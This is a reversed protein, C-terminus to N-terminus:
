KGGGTHLDQISACILSVSNTKSPRFTENAAETTADESCESFGFDLGEDIRRQRFCEFEFSSERLETRRLSHHNKMVCRDSGCDGPFWGFDKRIKSAGTQTFHDITM